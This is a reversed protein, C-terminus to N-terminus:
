VMRRSVSKIPIGRRSVTIHIFLTAPSLSSGDAKLLHVHRYGTRFSTFPLTFQGVFDNKSTHDHDEVVFRVLALEPVQLQFTLTCDWM